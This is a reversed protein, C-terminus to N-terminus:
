GLSKETHRLFNKCCRSGDQTQVGIAYQSMGTLRHGIKSSFLTITGKRGISSIAMTTSCHDVVGTWAHFPTPGRKERVRACMGAFLVTETARENLTHTM